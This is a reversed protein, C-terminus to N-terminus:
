TNNIKVNEDKKSFVRVLPTLQKSPDLNLSRSRQVRKGVNTATRAHKVSSQQASFAFQKARNVQQSRNVYLKAHETLMTYLWQNRTDEIRFGLMITAKENCHNFNIKIHFVTSVRKDTSEGVFIAPADLLSVKFHDGQQFNEKDKSITLIGNRIVTYVVSWVKPGTQMLTYGNM